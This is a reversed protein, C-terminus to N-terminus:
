AHEPATIAVVVFAEGMAEFAFFGVGRAVLGDPVLEGRAVVFFFDADVEFCVVRVRVGAKFFGKVRVLVGAKFFVTM